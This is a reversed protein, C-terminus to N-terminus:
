SMESFSTISSRTSRFDRCLAEAFTGGHNQLKGSLGQPEKLAEYTSSTVSHGRFDWSNLEHVNKSLRQLKLSLDDNTACASLLNRHVQHQRQRHKQSQIEDAPHHQQVAAEERVRRRTADSREITDAEVSAEYELRQHGDAGTCDQQGRSLWPRWRQYLLM